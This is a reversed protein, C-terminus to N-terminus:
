SAELVRKLGNLDTDFQKELQKRVLGEAIKFFGGPEGNGSLTLQTGEDKAEFKVTLEFPFPGSDAKQGYRNPPDWATIESTSEMKRGLLKDVSSLTSGVGPPGESAWESSVASDRWETDNAPDSMFDWVEQPPRNIFISKEFTFM